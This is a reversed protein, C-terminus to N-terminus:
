FYWIDVESSCPKRSYKAGNIINMLFNVYSLLMTLWTFTWVHCLHRLYDIWLYIRSLRVNSSMECIILATEYLRELFILHPVLPSSRFLAASWIEVASYIIWLGQITRAHPLVCSIFFLGCALPSTSSPKRRQVPGWPTTYWQTWMGWAVKQCTLWM